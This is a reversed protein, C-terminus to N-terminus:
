KRRFEKAHPCTSFHSVFRGDSQKELPTHNRSPTIWFELDRHCLRCPRAYGFSYESAILDVSSAPWAIPKPRPPRSDAPMAHEPCHDKDPSVRTTCEECIPADCTIPEGLLTEGTQFDCLRSAPRKCSRCRKMRPRAGCVIAVTEGVGPVNLKIRACHM